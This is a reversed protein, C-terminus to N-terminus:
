EKERLDFRPIGVVSGSRYFAAPLLVDESFKVTVMFHGGNEQRLITGKFPGYWCFSPEDGPVSPDVDQIMFKKM